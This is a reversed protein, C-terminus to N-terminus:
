GRKMFIGTLIKCIILKGEHGNKGHWADSNEEEREEDHVCEEDGKYRSDDDSKYNQIQKTLLVQEM